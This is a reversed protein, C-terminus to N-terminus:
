MLILTPNPLLDTSLNSHMESIKVVTGNWASVEDSHSATITARKNPDTTVFEKKNLNLRLDYQM